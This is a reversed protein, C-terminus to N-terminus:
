IGILEWTGFLSQKMGRASRMNVMLRKFERWSEEEEITSIPERRSYVGKGVDETGKASFPISKTKPLSIVMASIYAKVSAVDRNTDATVLDLEDETKIAKREEGAKKYATILEDLIELVEFQKDEFLELSEILGEREGTEETMLRVLRTYLKTLQTKSTKKQKKLREIDTLLLSAEMTDSAESGPEVM